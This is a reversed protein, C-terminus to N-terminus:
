PCAGCDERSCFQKATPPICARANKRPCCRTKRSRFNQPRQKASCTHVLCSSFTSRQELRCSSQGCTTHLPHWRGSGPGTQRGLGGTHQAALQIGLIHRVDIHAVVHDHDVRRLNAQGTELRLALEIAAIRTEGTTKRSSDNVRRILRRGSFTRSSAILPMSGLVLIPRAIPDFSFTYRSSLCGCAACCGTGRFM